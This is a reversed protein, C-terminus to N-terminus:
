YLKRPLLLSLHLTGVLSELYACGTHKSNLLSIPSPSPTASLLIVRWASLVVHWSRYYNDIATFVCLLCRGPAQCMDEWVCCVLMTQSFIHCSHSGLTRAPVLWLRSRECSPLMGCQSGGGESPNWVEGEERRSHEKGAEEAQSGEDRQVLCQLSGPSLRKADRRRSIQKTM